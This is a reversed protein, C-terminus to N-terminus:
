LYSPGVIRHDVGNVLKATMADLKSMTIYRQGGFKIACKILLINTLSIDVLCPTIMTHTCCWPYVPAPFKSNIASRAEKVFIVPSILGIYFIGTKVPVKLIGMEYWYHTHSLSAFKLQDMTVQWPLVRESSGQPTSARHRRVRPLSRWRYAIADSSLSPVSGIAYLPKIYIFPRRRPVRSSDRLYADYEAQIHLILLSVRFPIVSGTERSWIRLCTRPCPFIM